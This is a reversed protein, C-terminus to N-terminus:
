HPCARMGCPSRRVHGLMVSRTSGQQVQGGHQDAQAAQADLAVAAGIGEAEGIGDTDRHVQRHMAEVLPDLLLQLAEAATGHGVGLRRRDSHHYPRHDGPAAAAQRLARHRIPVQHRDDIGGVFPDDLSGPDLATEDGGLALLRRIQGQARRPLRQRRGAQPRILDVQDHEAGGAGVVGKGGGRDLHLRGQAHGLPQGEIDLRHAGAEEKGQAYGVIEDMMAQLDRPLAGFTRDM